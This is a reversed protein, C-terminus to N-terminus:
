APGAPGEDGDTEGTGLHEMAEAFHDGM